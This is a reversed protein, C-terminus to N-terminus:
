RKVGNNDLRSVTLGVLLDGIPKLTNRGLALRAAVRADPANAVTLRLYVRPFDKGPSSRHEILVRYDPM